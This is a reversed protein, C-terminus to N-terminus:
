RLKDWCSGQSTLLPLANELLDAEETGVSVTVASYGSVEFYELSDGGGGRGRLLRASATGPVRWPAPLKGLLRNAPRRAVRWECVNVQLLLDCLTGQFRM